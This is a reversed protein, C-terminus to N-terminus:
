RVQKQDQKICEITKQFIFDFADDVRRQAEKKEDETMKESWVSKYIVQLLTKKKKAM